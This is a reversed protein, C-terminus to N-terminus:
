WAHGAIGRGQGEASPVRPPASSPFSIACSPRIHTTNLHDLSPWQFWSLHTNRFWPDTPCYRSYGQATYWALVYILGPLHLFSLVQGYSAGIELIVAYGRWCRLLLYAGNRLAASPGFIIFATCRYSCSRSASRPARPHQSLSPEFIGTRSVRQSHFIHCLYGLRQRGPVLGLNSSRLTGPVPISVRSALHRIASPPICEPPPSAPVSFHLDTVTREVLSYQAKSM